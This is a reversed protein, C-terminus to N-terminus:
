ELTKHLALHGATLIDHALTIVEEQLSSPLCVLQTPKEHSGKDWKRFLVGDRISLRDYSNYYTYLDSTLHSSSKPKNGSQIWSIVTSITADNSQATAIKKPLCSSM